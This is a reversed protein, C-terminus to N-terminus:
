DNRGVRVIFEVELGFGVFHAVIEGAILVPHFILSKQGSERAILDRWSDPSLTLYEIPRFLSAPLM